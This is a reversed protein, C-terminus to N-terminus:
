NSIHIQTYIAEINRFSCVILNNGNERKMKCPMLATVIQERERERKKGKLCKKTELGNHGIISIFRIGIARVKKVM